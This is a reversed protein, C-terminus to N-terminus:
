QVSAKEFSSLMWRLTEELEFHALVGVQQILKDASGSLLHVENARVYAPNVRVELVHGSIDAMLQIVENLAYSRGTSVNYTEGVLGNKLLKLYADCIMRVDNYERLVDLNGLEIYAAKTAFHEVIKPVVFRNDHGVGTYNFPRSVVIPLSTFNAAMHEMALKSMAYHNVPKPCVSEKILGGYAYNGYVNASSALLVKDIKSPLSAVANLLNITGFLNVAYFASEDAHTVASIAALHAIHTPAAQHIEERLASFDTLDSRAAVVEYGCSRAAEVLHRGTFGDAGTVFLKPM